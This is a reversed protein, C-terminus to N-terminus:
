LNNAIEIFIDLSLNEARVQLDLNYKNLVENIKVLDYGKLNNKLTKRKQKFSDKVLKFFLDENKLSPLQKKKIFEVVISDVNPKPIFVNRSVDMIKNIEYYYNLFVTLSGYDKTGLKAKFRDGVEKQVMIIMKDVPLNDEIVKFIIPTTIYYPLNAVIYLKKYQYKKIDELVHCKLFDNYIIEVNNYETLVNDLIDKLNKDIEYCLVNQAVKALKTTLAGIGPGIEIVLTTNDILSKDIIKNIINEDIIFNQGYKKKTNFHYKDLIKKVQYPTYQM